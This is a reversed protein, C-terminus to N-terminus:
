HAYLYAAVDRAEAETIGSAPMATNPSLSQPRVIWNVLNDPSNTSVGGIYVRHRLGALSPGVKGDGGSIGPITHCGACGYRRLIDPARSPDGGTITRAVEVVQHQAQWWLGGTVAALVFGLASLAAMRGPAKLFASLM